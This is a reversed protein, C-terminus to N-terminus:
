PRVWFNHEGYEQQYVVMREQTESDYATRELRYLNGKFHRFYRAESRASSKFLRVVLRPM